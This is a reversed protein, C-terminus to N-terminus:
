YSYDNTGNQPKDKTINSIIINYLPDQMIAKQRGIGWKMFFRLSHNAKSKSYTAVVSEMEYM